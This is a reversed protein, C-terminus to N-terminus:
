RFDWETTSRNSDRDTPRRILYAGIGAALLATLPSAISWWTLAAFPVTGLLLLGSRTLRDTRWWAVAMLAIAGLVGVGAVMAPASGAALLLEFGGLLSLVVGLRYRTAPGTSGADHASEASM